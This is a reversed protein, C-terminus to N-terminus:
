AAVNLATTSGNRRCCFGAILLFAGSAFFLINHKIVKETIWILRGIEVPETVAFWANPNEDSAEIWWVGRPREITTTKWRNGPPSDPVLAVEGRASKVVLKLGTATGGLDGAIRFRLISRTTAPQNASRWECSGTDSTSYSSFAIPWPAPPLSQPVSQRDPTPAPALSLSRHVSPPLIEQIEPLDLRAKLVGPDPYPIEPWSKGLLEGPAGTRVYNRTHEQQIERVGKLPLVGCRWEHWSQASLAATVVIFWTSAVVIRM